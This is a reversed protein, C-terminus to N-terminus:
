TKPGFLADAVSGVAVDGVPGLGAALPKLVERFVIAELARVAAGRAEISTQREKVPEAIYRTAGGCKMGSM